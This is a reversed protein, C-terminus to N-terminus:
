LGGYAVVRQVKTYGDRARGRARVILEEFRAMHVNALQEHRAESSYYRLLEALSGAVMAERWTTILIEPLQTAGAVPALGARVEVHEGGKFYGDFYLSLREAYVRKPTSGGQPAFSIEDGAKALEIGDVKVAILSAFEANRPTDFDIVRANARVRDTELTERWVGTEKCFRGAVRVIVAEIVPEAVDAVMSSVLPTFESINIM